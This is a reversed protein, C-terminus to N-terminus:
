PNIGKSPAACSLNSRVHYLTKGKKSNNGDALFQPIIKCRVTLGQAQWYAEVRQALHQAGERSSLDTVNIHTM